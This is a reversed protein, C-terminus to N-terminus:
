DVAIAMPLKEISFGTGTVFAAIEERCWMAYIESNHECSVHTDKFNRYVAFDEEANLLRIVGLETAEDLTLERENTIAELECIRDNISQQMQELGYQFVLAMVENIDTFVEREGALIEDWDYGVDDLLILDDTGCGLLSVLFRKSGTM